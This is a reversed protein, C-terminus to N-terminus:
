EHGACAPAYPRDDLAGRWEEITLRRGARACADAVAAEIGVDFLRVVGDAGATAVRTGDPSFTAATVDRDREGPPATGAHPLVVSAGAGLTWLRATGDQASTVALAGDPSFEASWVAGTHGRLVEAASEPSRVSWLRATADSSASLLRAGARDFRVSWVPGGHGRLVVGDSPADGALSWLRVDGDESATAFREGDPAVALDFIAATHGAYRPGPRPDSTRATDLTWSLVDGRETAALL